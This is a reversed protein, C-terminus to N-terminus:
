SSHVPSKHASAVRTWSAKPAALKAFVGLRKDLLAIEQALAKHRLAVSRMAEKMVAAPEVSGDSRFRSAMEVRAQTALPALKARLPDPATLVLDRLQNSAQTSAKMAGRRAVRLARIAEVTGNGAKAAGSAEGSLVARAAAEADTADSKGKRRRTQRNPRLVEVVEVGRSALFRSLGAGYTGTGEVGIKTDQGHRAMWGLLQRYGAADASFSESGLVRGVDDIVVAVHADRHTDVGGVVEREEIRTM